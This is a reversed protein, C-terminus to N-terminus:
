GDPVRTPNIKLSINPSKLNLSLCGRDIDLTEMKGRHDSHLQQRVEQLLSAFSCVRDPDMGRLGWSMGMVISCPCRPMPLSSHCLGAYSSSSRVFNHYGYAQVFQCLCMYQSCECLSVCVCLLTSLEPPPLHAEDRMSGILQCPSGLAPDRSTNQFWTETTSFTSTLPKQWSCLLPQLCGSLCRNTMWPVYTGCKLCVAKFHLYVHLHCREGKGSSKLLNASRGNCPRRPPM